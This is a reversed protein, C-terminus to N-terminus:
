ALESSLCPAGVCQEYGNEENTQPFNFSNNKQGQKKDFSGFFGVCPAVPNDCSAQRNVSTHIAGCGPRMRGECVRCRSGAPWERFRASSGLGELLTLSHNSGDLGYICAGCKTLSMYRSLKITMVSTRESQGDASTEGTCEGDMIM